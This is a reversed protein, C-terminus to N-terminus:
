DMSANRGYNTVVALGSLWTPLDALLKAQLPIYARFSTIIKRSTNKSLYVYLYLIFIFLTSYTIDTCHM